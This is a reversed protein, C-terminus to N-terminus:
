KSFTKLYAIVDKRDEDNRLGAFAMKNKPMFAAPNSLYKLLNDETWILGKAGAEKNATSYNFGEVAGAHRNVINNLQPGVANKATAGIQHCARCRRFIQEGNAADQAAAGSMSALLLVLGSLVRTQM